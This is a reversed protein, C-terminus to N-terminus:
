PRTAISDRRRRGHSPHSRHWPAGDHRTARRGHSQQAAARRRLLRALSSGTRRWMAVSHPMPGRRLSWPLAGQGPRRGSRFLRYRRLPLATCSLSHYLIDSSSLFVFCPIDRRIRAVGATSRDSPALCRPMRALSSRPCTSPTHSTGSPTDPRVAHAPLPAGARPLSLRRPMRALSSRPYTSPTHPTGSSTDTRVAHAPLPAGARPLSLRRPM